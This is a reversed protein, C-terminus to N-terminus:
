YHIIGGFDFKYDGILFSAINCLIVSLGLRLILDLVDCSLEFCSKRTIRLYEWNIPYNSILEILTRLSTGHLFIQVSWCSFVYKFM